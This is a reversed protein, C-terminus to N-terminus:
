NTSGHNKIPKLCYTCHWDDWITNVTKGRFPKCSCCKNHGSTAELFENVTQNINELSTRGYRNYCIWINFDSLITSLLNNCKDNM